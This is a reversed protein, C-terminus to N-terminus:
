GDSGIWVAMLIEDEYGYSKRSHRALRGEKVFGFSRYLAIAADNHPYVSLVLKEVGAQKAWAIAEVMLRHGIGRGRADAAVAIALSGVHRTVPHRERQVTVHGVLRAGDFALLNTELDSRQRFRRRYARASMQVEESRVFREEAVIATWHELFAHADAPRAPRIELTEDGVGEAM